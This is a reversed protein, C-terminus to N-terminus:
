KVNITLHVIVGLKVSTLLKKDFFMLNKDNNSFNAFILMFFSVIECTFKESFLHEM